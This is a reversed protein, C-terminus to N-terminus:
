FGKLIRSPHNYAGFFIIAFEDRCTSTDKKGLDIDDIVVVMARIWDWRGLIGQM